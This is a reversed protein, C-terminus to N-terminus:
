VITFIYNTNIHAKLTNLNIVREALSHPDTAEGRRARVHVYDTLPQQDVVKKEKRARPKLRKRESKQTERNQM